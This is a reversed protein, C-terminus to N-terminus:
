RGLEAAIADFDSPTWLFSAVGADTFAALWALQDPSAKGTQRKLEAAVVRGRGVLLLDPFGAGDGQVPTRWGRATFAPRFHAVRYGFLHALEIVQALFERESIENALSSSKGTSRTRATGGGASKTAAPEATSSAIRAQASIRSRDRTAM